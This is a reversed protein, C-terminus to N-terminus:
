QRLRDPRPKTSRGFGDDDFTNLWITMTELSPPAQSYKAQWRLAGHERVIADLADAVSAAGLNLSFRRAGQETRMSREALTSGARGSLGIFVADLAGGLHQDELVFGDSIRNLIHNRDAWATLPRVVIVGKSEIWRYRADLQVLVNLAEEVTRGLLNVQEVFHAPRDAGCEGPLYESGTPVGAIKGIAWVATPVTCIDVRPGVRFAVGVIRQLPPVSSNQATGPVWCLLVIVASIAFRRM